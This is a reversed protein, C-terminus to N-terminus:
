LGGIVTGEDLYEGITIQLDDTIRLNDIGKVMLFLDKAEVFFNVILRYYEGLYRKKIEQLVDEDIRIYKKKLEREIYELDQNYYDMIFDLNMEIMCENKDSYRTSDYLYIQVPNNRTYYYHRMLFISIYAIDDKALSQQMEIGRQYLKDLEDYLRSVIKEANNKVYEGIKDINEEMKEALLDSAYQIIEEKDVKQVHLGM